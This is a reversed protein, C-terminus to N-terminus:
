RCKKEDTSKKRNAIRFAESIRKRNITLSNYTWKLVEAAWENKLRPGFALCYVGSRFVFFGSVFHTEAGGSVGLSARKCLIQYYPPKPFQNNPLKPSAM